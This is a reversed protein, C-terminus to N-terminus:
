FSKWIAGLRERLRSFLPEHPEWGAPLWFSITKKEGQCDFQEGEEGSNSTVLKKRRPIFCIGLFNIKLKIGFHFFFRRCIKIQLLFALVKPFLWSKRAAKKVVLDLPFFDYFTSGEYIKALGITKDTIVFFFVMGRPLREGSHLKTWKLLSPVRSLRRCKLPPQKVIGDNLDAYM